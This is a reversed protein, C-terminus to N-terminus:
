EEGLLVDLLARALATSSVSVCKVAGPSTSWAHGREDVRSAPGAGGRGFGVFLDLFEDGRWGRISWTFDWTDESCRDTQLRWGRAEVLTCAEAFSGCARLPVDLHELEEYARQADHVTVLVKTGGARRAVTTEARLTFRDALDGEVCDRVVSISAWLGQRQGFVNTVDLARGEVVIAKEKLLTIQWGAKELEQRIAATNRLAGSM